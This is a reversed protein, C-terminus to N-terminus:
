RGANAVALNYDAVLRDFQRKSWGPSPDLTYSCIAEAAIFAARTSQLETSELDLVGLYEIQSALQEVRQKLQEIKAGDGSEQAKKKISDAARRRPVSFDRYLRIRRNMCEGYDIGMGAMEKICDWLEDLKELAEKYDQERRQAKWEAEARQRAEREQREAELKGAHEAEREAQRQAEEIEAQREAKRRSQEALERARDFGQLQDQYDHAALAGVIVTIPIAFSSGDDHGEQPARNSRSSAIGVLEGRQNLIPCGSAGPELLASIGLDGRIYKTVTGSTMIVPAAGDSPLAPSCIVHVTEGPSPVRECPEVPRVHFQDDMRLIAFDIDANWYYGVPEFGDGASTLVAIDGLSQAREIVHHNTLIAVEGNVEFVVGSGRGPAPGECTVAVASPQVRHYIESVSLSRPKESISASEIKKAPEGSPASSQTGRSVDSGITAIASWPPESDHVGPTAGSPEDRDSRANPLAISEPHGALDGEFHGFVLIAAIAGGLLVPIVILFVLVMPALLVSRSPSDELAVGSAPRQPVQGASAASAAEEVGGPKADSGPREPSSISPQGPPKAAVVEGDAAIRFVGGCANCRVRRGLVQITVQFANPCYPCKAEM